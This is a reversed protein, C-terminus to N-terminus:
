PGGGSAQLEARCLAVLADRARAAVAPDLLTDAAAINLDHAADLDHIVLTGTVGSADFHVDLYSFPAPHAHAPRAWLVLAAALLLRFVRRRM